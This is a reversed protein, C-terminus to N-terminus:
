QKIKAYSPVHVHKILSYMLQNILDSIKILPKKFSYKQNPNLYKNSSVNLTDLDQDRLPIRSAHKITVGYILM